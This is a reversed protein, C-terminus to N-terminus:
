LSCRQARSLKGIKRKPLVREDLWRKLVQEKPIDSLNNQHDAPYGHWLGTSNSDVFKAVFLRTRYDKGIGLYEVQENVLHLGWGVGNLVWRESLTKAFCDKEESKTISWQSKKPWNNRHHPHNFYFVGPAIEQQPEM